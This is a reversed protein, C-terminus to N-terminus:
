YKAELEERIRHEITNVQQSGVGLASNGFSSAVVEYKRSAGQESSRKTNAM